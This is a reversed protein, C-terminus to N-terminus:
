AALQCPSKEPKEVHLKKLTTQPILVPLNKADIGLKSIHIYTCQEGGSYSNVIHLPMKTSYTYLKDKPHVLSLKIQEEKFRRGLLHVHGTIQQINTQQGNNLLISNAFNQDLNKIIVYKSFEVYYRIEPDTLSYQPFDILQQETLTKSSNNVYGGHSLLYSKGKIEAIAFLPMQDIFRNVAEHYKASQPLKDLWDMFYPNKQKRMDTNGALFFCNEPFQIKLDAMKCIMRYTRWAVEEKYIYTNSIPNKFHNEINGRDIENLLDLYDGLFLYKIKPNISIEQEANNIFTELADLDSHLDGIIILEDSKIKLLQGPKGNSKARVFGDGKEKNMLDVAKNLKEIDNKNSEPLPLKPRDMPLSLKLQYFLRTTKYNYNSLQNLEKRAILIDIIEKIEKINLNTSNVLENPSFGSPNTYSMICRKTLLIKIKETMNGFIEQNNLTTYEELMNKLFEILKIQYKQMILENSNINNALEELLGLFLENIYKQNKFIYNKVPEDLTPYYSSRFLRKLDNLIPILETEFNKACSVIKAVDKNQYYYDYVLWDPNYSGKIWLGNEKLQKGIRAKPYARLQQFPYSIDFMLGTERLFDINDHLDELTMWPDFMIFGSIVRIDNEKLINYVKRTENLNHAKGFRKLQMASGTEFGIFSSFFGANKWLKLATLKKANEEDTASENYISKASVSAMIQVKPDLQGTEKLNIIAKALEISKDPNNTIIDEDTFVLMGFDKVNSNLFKIDELIDQIPSDIQGHAFFYKRECFACNYACGRKTSIYVRGRNENIEDMFFRDPQTYVPKNERFTNIIEQNSNCYALNSINSFSKNGQLYSILGEMSPEGDGLGILIWPYKKLLMEYNHTAVVNGLIIVPRENVPWNSVEKIIRDVDSLSGFFLSLGLVHPKEKKIKDIVEDIKPYLHAITGSSIIASGFKNKLNGSLHEVGLPEEVKTRDEPNTLSVFSIRIKDKIPIPWKEPFVAVNSLHSNPALGLIFFINFIITLIIINKKFNYFQNYKLHFKM